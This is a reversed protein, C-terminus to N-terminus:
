LLSLCHQNHAIAICFCNCSNRGRCAQSQIGASHYRAAAVHLGACRCTLYCPVEQTLRAAIFTVVKIQDGEKVKIQDLLRIKAERPQLQTGLAHVLQPPACPPTELVPACPPWERVPPLISASLPVRYQTFADRPPEQSKKFDFGWTLEESARSADRKPVFAGTDANPLQYNHVM